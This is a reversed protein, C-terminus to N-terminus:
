CRWPTSRPRAAQGAGRRRDGRHHRLGGGAGGPRDAAIKLAKERSLREAHQPPTEGDLYSEDLDAPLTEFELGLRGILEARRPSQSALVLPPPTQLDPM